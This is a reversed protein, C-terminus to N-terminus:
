GWDNLGWITLTVSVALTCLSRVICVKGLGPPRASRTAQLVGPPGRSRLVTLVWGTLPYKFPYLHYATSFPMLCWWISEIVRPEWMALQIWVSHKLVSIIINESTEMCNWVIIHYSTNFGISVCINYCIQRVLRHRFNGFMIFRYSSLTSNLQNSFDM